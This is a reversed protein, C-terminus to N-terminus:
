VIVGLLTLLWRVALIGVSTLATTITIVIMTGWVIPLIDSEMFKNWVKVINNHKSHKSM